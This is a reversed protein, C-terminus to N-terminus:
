LLHAGCAEEQPCALCREHLSPRRPWAFCTQLLDDPGVKEAVRIIPNRIAKMEAMAEAREVGFLSPPRFSLPSCSM